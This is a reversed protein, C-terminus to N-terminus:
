RSSPRCRRLARLMNWGLVTGIPVGPLILISLVYCCVYGLRRGRLVSLIGASLLASLVLTVVVTLPSAKAQPGTLVMLPVLVMCYVAYAWATIRVTELDGNHRQM